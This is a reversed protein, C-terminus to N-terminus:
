RLFGMSHSVAAIGGGDLSVYCCHVSSEMSNVKSYYMLICIYVISLCFVGNGSLPTNFFVAAIGSAKAM